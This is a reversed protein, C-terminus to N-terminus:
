NNIKSFFHLLLIKEFNSHKLTITLLSSRYSLANFIRQKSVPLNFYFSIIQLISIYTM